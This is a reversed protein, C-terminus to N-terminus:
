KVAAREAETLAVKDRLYVPVIGAPDVGEGRALRMAALTVMHEARPLANEDCREPWPRRVNLIRMGRGIAAAGIAAAADLLLEDPKGVRLEGLAAVGRAPDIRFWGWYLEGMRADLCALVAAPVAGPVPRWEFAQQALAELSTVPILRLGAGFALGQAVSVSIRVGTFAGPGVGVAIGALERLTLGAETLVEDVMPLIRLAHGRGPEEFRSIMREGTWLAVSCGETVTDMALLPPM